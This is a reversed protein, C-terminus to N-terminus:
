KGMHRQFWTTADEEPHEDVIEPEAAPEETIYVAMTECMPPPGCAIGSTVPDGIKIKLTRPEPDALEPAIDKIAIKPLRQFNQEVISELSFHVKNGFADTGVMSRSKEDFYVPTGPQVVGPEAPPIGWARAYGTQTLAHHRREFEIAQEAAALNTYGRAIHSPQYASASRNRRHIEQQLKDNEAALSTALKLAFNLAEDPRSVNPPHRHESYHRAYERQIIVSDLSRIKLSYLISANEELM